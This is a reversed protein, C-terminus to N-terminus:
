QNELKKIITNRCPKLSLTDTHAVDALTSIDVDVGEYEASISVAAAAITNPDDDLRKANILDLLERALIGIEEDLGLGTTYVLVYEKPEESYRKITSAFLSDQDETEYISFGIPVEANNAISGSILEQFDLPDPDGESLILLFKENYVAKKVLKEGESGEIENVISKYDKKVWTPDTEYIVNM